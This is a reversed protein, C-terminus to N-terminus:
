QGDREMLFLISAIAHALHHYGSEPDHTEGKMWAWIHRMAASFYRPKHNPVLKWNDDGYKNGGFTLVKVVEEISNTPLLNWRLKLSDDKVGQNKNEM